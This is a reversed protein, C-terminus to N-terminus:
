DFIYELLIKAININPYWFGPGANFEIIAGWSEQLSLSLDTTIIDIGVVVLWVKQALTVCQTKLTDGIQHTVDIPTGWQAINSVSTLQITMGNQPISSLSLGYNALYTTTAENIPIHSLVKEYGNWRLPNQNEITILEEITHKGDGIIHAPVRKIGYVVKDGIVLIRQEDGPIFKQIIITDAFSFAHDIGQQLMEPSTINATVWNGHSWDVPKTVLPYTLSSDSLKFASKDEKKLYYSQPTPFGNSRLFIESLEKDDAIKKWLSSNGGFDNSKFYVTKEGKTIKFFNKTPQLIEVQLGKKQAEEILLQSTIWRYILFNEM